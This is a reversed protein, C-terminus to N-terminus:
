RQSFKIGNCFIETSKYFIKLPKLMESIKNMILQGFFFLFLRFVHWWASAHKQVM